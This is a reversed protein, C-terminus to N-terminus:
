YELFESFLLPHESINIAADEGDAKMFMVLMESVSECEFKRNNYMNEKLLTVQLLDTCM